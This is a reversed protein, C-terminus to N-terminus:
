DPPEITMFTESVGSGSRSTDLRSENSLEDDVAPVRRNLLRIM